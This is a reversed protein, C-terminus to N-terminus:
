ATRTFLYTLKFEPLLNTNIAIAEPVTFETNGNMKNFVTKESCGILDGVTKQTINKRRLEAALNSYVMADEGKTVKDPIM